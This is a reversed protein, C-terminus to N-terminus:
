CNEGIWTVDGVEETLRKVFRELIGRFRLPYEKADILTKGNLFIKMPKIAIGLIEIYIISMAVPTLFTKVEIVDIYQTNLGKIRDNLVGVKEMLLGALAKTGQIDVSNEKLEEFTKFTRAGYTIVSEYDYLDYGEGLLKLTKGFLETDNYCFLLQIYNGFRDRCEVTEIKFICDFQERRYVQSIKLKKLIRTVIYKM